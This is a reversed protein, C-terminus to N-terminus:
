SGIYKYRFGVGDDKSFIEACIIPEAIKEGVWIVCEVGWTGSDNMEYLDIYPRSGVKESFAVDEPPLGIVPKEGFYDALCECIEDFIPETVGFVEDLRAKDVYNISNVFESLLSYVEDYFKKDM